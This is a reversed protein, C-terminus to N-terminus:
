LLQGGIPDCDNTLVVDNHPISVIVAEGPERIRTLMKSGKCPDVEALNRRQIRIRVVIEINRIERTMTNELERTVDRNRLPTGLSLFVVVKARRSYSDIVPVL